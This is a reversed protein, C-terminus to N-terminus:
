LIHVLGAYISTSVFQADASLFGIYTYVARGSLATVDLTYSGANRQPGPDGTVWQGLVECYIAVFAQDTVRASGDGSNDTWTFSLKKETESHVSINEPNRLDGVGLVFRSYDITFDPYDGSIANRMNYSLTKNFCSMQFTCCEYTENLLETLPRVFPTMLKLKAMQRLQAETSRRRKRPPKSKIVAIGKWTTGVVPGVTGHFAGPISPNLKGM